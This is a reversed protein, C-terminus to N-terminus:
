QLCTNTDISPTKYEGQESVRKNVNFSYPRGIRHGRAVGLAWDGNLPVAGPLTGGLNNLQNVGQVSGVNLGIQNGFKLLDTKSVEYIAVDMVVEARDKDLSSILRGILNINEQTDRITISNTATDELVITTNRGPQAPIAAQIIPKIDKPSANALYFTRLVLQQFNPRRSANAVLITRPGVKQFFLNEQLFIYDLRERM